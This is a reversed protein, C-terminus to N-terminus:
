KLLIEYMRLLKKEENVWNYYQEVAERGKDGMKKAEEPHELIYIIADAISKPDLPNVLLGCGAGEVIKRWLPFDAAIVPLGSSMYEFLKTPYSVLYHVEPRRIVLGAKAQNLLKKVEERSLFGRYDVNKWGPLSQMDGQLSEPAFKGALILQANKKRRVIGTAEVIEKIGLSIDISGISIVADRRNEWLIGNEPLFEDLLPFNRIVVTRPNLPLFKKAIEPTAAVIGDFCRASFNEIFKLICSTPKQLRRPLWYRNRIELPYDEHVDYIVKKGVFRLLLGVGILEPDHFHFIDAKTRLAAICVRSMTTTLRFFRSTNSSPVGVIKIGNKEESITLPVVLSVDYDAKVLSACEKLFIRADTVAHVSTLHCVRFSSKKTEM